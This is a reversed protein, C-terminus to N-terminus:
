SREYDGMDLPRITAAQRQDRKAKRGRSNKPRVDVGRSSEPAERFLAELAAASLSAAAHINLSANLDRDIVLGCKECRYTESSGPDNWSGCRSCHKTTYAAPVLVSRGGYLPMKYALLGKIRFMGSDLLSRNLASKAARGKGKKHRTLNKGKLDGEVVAVSYTQAVWTTAKHEYDKRICAVRHSLRAAKRRERKLRKSEERHQGKARQGAKKDAARQKRAISLQVEYLRTEEQDRAHCNPIVTGDSLAMLKRSGVDIGVSPRNPNDPACPRDIKVSVFWQGCEEVVSVSKYKGDPIYGKEGPMFSIKGIRPLHIRGNKVSVSGTLRFHGPDRFRSKYKPFGPEEGKELRMFSNRYGQQLDRLAEQPACKSVSYMWPFGGEEVSLNKLQVLRKHLDIDSPVKPASEPPAGVDLAAKRLSWYYQKLGLAWNWAARATGAARGLAATQTPNPRIAAKHGLIM